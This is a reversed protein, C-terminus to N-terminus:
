NIIDKLKTNKSMGTRKEVHAIYNARTKGPAEAWVTILDEITANGDLRTATRGQAKMWIDWMLSYFGIDDNLFYAHGDRVGLAFPSLRLNGPNHNRYSVSPSVPMREGQEKPQWGEFEAIAQSLNTLDQTM